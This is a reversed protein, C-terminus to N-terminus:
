GGSRDLLVSQLVELDRALDLAGAPSGLDYVPIGYARAIRIAQGTGGSGSGGPTWCLVFAVPDDLNAGLVIQANRAHLRRAYPALRHPAPHFRAVSDLAAQPLPVRATFIQKRKAGAEFARDAGEAGGSRLTWGAADLRRALEDMAGLWAPPTRRSGVGAYATPVRKNSINPM